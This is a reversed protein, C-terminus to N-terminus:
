GSLSAGAPEASGEHRVAVHAWLVTSTVEASGADDFRSEYIRRISVHSVGNSSDIAQSDRSFYFEDWQFDVFFLYLFILNLNKCNISSYL